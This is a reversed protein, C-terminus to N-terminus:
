NVYDKIVNLIKKYLDLADHPTVPVAVNPLLTEILEAFCPDILKPRTTFERMLSKVRTEKISKSYDRADFQEPLNFLVFPKGGIFNRAHQKRIRHENWLTKTSHLDSQILPGFCYQLCKIHLDSGDFLNREQMCKFFQIYFDGSHRRMQGWYAEIRQNRVIRGQIFSAEGQLKDDHVMRLCTQLTGILTNESGKDSRIITPLFKLSIVSNLYYWATVKPDNNTTAVELWIIYRSFGDICGHIAFGFQKLKDYGDLHWLFNPGPSVYERRKLKNGYRNAIGEPDAIKLIHYVTSRKVNLHYKRKLKLWLARYGLNYGCSTLEEVVAAVIDSMNSEEINKRKLGLSSLIRKITSLSTQVAHKKLLLQRIEEHTCNMDFYKKILDEM